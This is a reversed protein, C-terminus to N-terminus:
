PALDPRPPPTEHDFTAAQAEDIRAVVRVALVAATLQLAGGLLLWPALPRAIPTLDLTTAGEAITRAWRVAEPVVFAVIGIAPALSAGLWAAWWWGLLPSSAADTRSRRDLERMAVLPMALNLLPIFWSGVAWGPTIRLGTVGRAWLNATAQHQWILWVVITLQSVLSPLWLLPYWPSSMWTFPRVDVRGPPPLELVIRQRSLLVFAAAGVLLMSAGTAVLLARLLRGTRGPPRWRYGSRAPASV